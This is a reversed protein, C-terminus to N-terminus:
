KISAAIASIEEKTVRDPSAGNAAYMIEFALNNLRWRLTKIWPNPDWVPGSDTLDWTGEVYEGTVNGIRVKIVVANAGVKGCVDCDDNIKYLEEQLVMFYSDDFEPTNKGGEYYLYAIKHEPDFNVRNFILEDPLWTPELVNFGVQKEVESISLSVNRRKDEKAIQTETEASVPTKQWEQLPLNDSEARIFYLLIKETSTYTPRPTSPATRTAANASATATAAASAASNNPAMRCASLAFVIVSLLPISAIKM